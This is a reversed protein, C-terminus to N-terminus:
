PTQSRRFMLRVITALKGWLENLGAKSHGAQRDRFKIPQENFTAKNQKLYWLLEELYSYGSSQLNERTLADLSAVRYVRFAGSADRVPLHLLSCSTKNLLRSILRRHWPWGEIQGGECYRSGIVVDFRESAELLAPLDHPDHSWDADMTVLRQYEQDIAYDIATRAATGLGQKSERHIVHLWPHQSAWQACWQGTGDPSKDDVVLIDASPVQQRIAVVLSPLNDMENYTALAVLVRSDIPNM